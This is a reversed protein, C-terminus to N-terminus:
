APEAGPASTFVSAVVLNGDHIALGLSPLARPAPGGIVAGEDYPDFMSEHCPCLLAGQKSDWDSVDCGSHTCIASYAMIGAAARSRTAPSLREEDLRVLVLRNTLGSRPTPGAPDMPWGILPQGTVIDEPRLPTNVPARNRVLLDRVAVKSAQALVGSPWSSGAAVVATTAARLFARRSCSQCQLARPM